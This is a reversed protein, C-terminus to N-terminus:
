LIQKKLEALLNLAEVPRLNDIDAARLADLVRRDLPTFLAQQEPLPEGSATAGPTLRESLQHEAQEHRELIERARLIVAPPLGAM